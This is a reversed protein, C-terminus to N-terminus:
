KVGKYENYVFTSMGQLTRVNYFKIKSDSTFNGYKEAIKKNGVSTIFGDEEPIFTPKKKYYSYPNINSVNSQM